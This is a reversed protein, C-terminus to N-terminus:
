NNEYLQYRRFEIFAPKGTGARGNATRDLILVADILAGNPNYNVRIYRKDLAAM